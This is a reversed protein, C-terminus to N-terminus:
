RVGIWFSAQENLFGAASGLWPIIYPLMLPEMASRDSKGKALSKSQVYFRLNTFLWTSGLIIVLVLSSSFIAQFILLMASPITVSTAPPSLSPVSLSDKELQISGKEIISELM